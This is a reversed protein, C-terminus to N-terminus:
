RNSMRWVVYVLLLMVAVFLLSRIIVQSRAMKKRDGVYLRKWQMHGMLIGLSM